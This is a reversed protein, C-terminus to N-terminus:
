VEVVDVPIGGVEELIVDGKESIILLHTNQPLSVHDLHTLREVRGSTSLIGELGDLLLIKSKSM